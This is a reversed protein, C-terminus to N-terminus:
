WLFLTSCLSSHCIFIGGFEVDELLPNFKCLELVWNSWEPDTGTRPSGGNLVLNRLQNVNCLCMHPLLERWWGRCSGQLRFDRLSSSNHQILSKIVALAPLCSPSSAFIEVKQLKVPYCYYVNSSPTAVVTNWYNLSRAMVIAHKFFIQDARCLGRLNAIEFVYWYELVLQGIAGFIQHSLPRSPNRKTASM